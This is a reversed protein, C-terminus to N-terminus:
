NLLRFIINHDYYCSWRFTHVSQCMFRLNSEKTTGITSIFASKEVKKGNLDQITFTLTFTYGCMECQYPWAHFRTAEQLPNVTFRISVTIHLELRSGQFSFTSTFKFGCMQFLLAMSHKARKHGQFSIWFSIQKYWDQLETDINKIVWSTHLHM